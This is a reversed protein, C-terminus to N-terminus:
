MVCAIVRARYDHEAITKADKLSCTDPTDVFRGQPVDEAIIIWEDDAGPISQLIYVDALWEGSKYHWNM